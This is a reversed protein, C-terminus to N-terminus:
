GIVNWDQAIKLEDLENPAYAAIPTAQGEVLIEDPESVTPRCVCLVGQTQATPNHYSHPFHRPWLRVSGRTGPANQVLMGDTLLMEAEHVRRHMHLPVTCGPGLNLRYIGVNPTEHVVQLSGFPRKQVRYTTDTQHRTVDLCPVAHGLLGATKEIRLRVSEIAARREGEAPPLLLTRCLAHCATELLYFQGLRLLFLIQAAVFEYDVTEGLQESCAASETDVRLEVQALLRQPALRESPNVGIICDLKLDRLQITDSNVM